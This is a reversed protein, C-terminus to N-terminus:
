ANVEAALNELEQLAGLATNGYDPDICSKVVSAVQKVKSQLHEYKSKLEQYVVLQHPDTVIVATGPGGKSISGLPRGLLDGITKRSPRGRRRSGSVGEGGGNVAAVKPRVVRKPRGRPWLYNGSLPVTVAEFGTRKPRGRGRKVRVGNLKRGPRGLGAEVVQIEGGGGGPEPVQAQIKGGGGSAGGSKPPRGRGRKVAVPTQANESAPPAPLPAVVVGDDGLGLSALLPGSGSGPGTGSGYNGGLDQGGGAADYIFRAEYSRVGGDYPQVEQVQNQVQEGLGLGPVPKLKPPRGPKRKVSGSNELGFGVNADAGIASGGGFELVHQYNTQPESSRVPPPIMYSHKVMVLQGLNKLRKLHHTLLTSHTPPLNAFHKEIYKSIAQRSSGDKDKLATITATIMEPYPPHTQTPTTVAPPPAATFHDTTIPPPQDTIPDM